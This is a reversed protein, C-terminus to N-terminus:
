VLDSVKSGRRLHQSREYLTSVGGCESISSAILFTPLVNYLPKEVSVLNAIELNCITVTITVVSSVDIFNIGIDMLISM